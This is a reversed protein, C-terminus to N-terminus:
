HILKAAYTASLRRAFAPFYPLVSFSFVLLAVLRKM